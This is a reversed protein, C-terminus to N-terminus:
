PIEKLFTALDRSFPLLESTKAPPRLRYRELGRLLAEMRPLLAPRRHAVRAKLDTWGLARGEGLAASMGQRLDETLLTLADSPKLASTYLGSRIELLSDRVEGSARGEVPREAEAPSARWVLLGLFLLGACAAPVLGYRSLVYALGPQEELGHRFEDFCIPKGSAALLRLALALHGPKALDANELWGPEALAFVRGRGYPFAALV